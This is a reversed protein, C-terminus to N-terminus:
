NGSLFKDLLADVENCLQNSIDETEETNGAVRSSYSRTYDVGSQTPPSGSKDSNVESSGSSGDADIIGLHPIAADASDLNWSYKHGSDHDQDKGLDTSLPVGALSPARSHWSSMRLFAETSLTSITPDYTKLASSKDRSTEFEGSEASESDVSCGSDKVEDEHSSPIENQEGNFGKETDSTCSPAHFSAMMRFQSPSMMDYPSQSYSSATELHPPRKVTDPTAKIEEGGDDKVFLGDLRRATNPKKNDAGSFESSRVLGTTADNTEEPPVSQAFLELQSSLPASPDFGYQAVRSHSTSRYARSSLKTVFPQETAPTQDVTANTDERVVRPPFNTMDFEVNSLGAEFSRDDFTDLSSDDAIHRRVRRRHPVNYDNDVELDMDSIVSAGEEDYLSARSMDRGTRTRPTSDDSGFDYTTMDMTSINDGEKVPGYDGGSTNTRGRVFVASARSTTSRASAISKDDSVFSRSKKLKNVGHPTKQNRSRNTRRERRKEDFYKRQTEMTVESLLSLNSQSRNDLDDEDGEFHQGSNLCQFDFYWSTSEKLDMIRATPKTTTDDLGDKRTATTGDVHVKMDEFEKWLSRYGKVDEVRDELKAKRRRHMENKEALEVQVKLRNFNAITQPNVSTKPKKQGVVETPIDRSAGKPPAILPAPRFVISEPATIRKNMLHVQAAEEARKKAKTSSASRAPSASARGTRPPRNGLRSPPDLSLPVSLIDDDEDSPATLSEEENIVSEMVSQNLSHNEFTVSSASDYNASPRNPLDNLSSDHADKSLSDASLNQPVSVFSFKSDPSKFQYSPTEPATANTKESPSLRSSTKSDKAPLLLILSGKTSARSHPKHLVADFGTAIGGVDAARSQCTGM